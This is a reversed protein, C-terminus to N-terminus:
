SKQVWKGKDDQYWWGKKANSIWRQSFTARIQAAWEPHGNADAIAQYLALRDQNEDDVETKIKNRNRLPVGAPDRLLILASNTLGIAGTDYFPELAEFRKKMRAKVAEIAPTSVNFDAAAQAPSVLLDLAKGFISPLARQSQPAPNEPSSEETPTDSKEQAKSEVAQKKDWVEQILKDAAKEAAAAPFYVNITVCASITLLTLLSALSLKLQSM